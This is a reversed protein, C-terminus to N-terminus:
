PWPHDGALDDLIPCEPRRDGQCHQVLETLTRRMAQLEAIKQDLESIHQQAVRRVDASARRRNRWLGVLQAIEKISFGLDRARRIFRLTHIDNADYIRYGGDTRRAREVLGISEYHRIMKASVGSHEAAQGINM